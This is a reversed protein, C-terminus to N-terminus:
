GAGAALRADLAPDPRPDLPRHHRASASRAVSSATPHTPGFRGIDFIQGPIRVPASHDPFPRGRVVEAIALEDDVPLGWHDRVVITVDWTAIGDPACRHRSSGSRPTPGSTACPTPWRARPRTPSRPPTSRSTWRGGRSSATSNFQAGFDDDLTADGIAIDRPWDRAFATLRQSLLSRRYADDAAAPIPLSEYGLAANLLEAELFGATAVARETADEQCEADGEEACLFALNVWSPADGPNHEVAAEAADRAVDGLGAREAAVALAKPGAPHWLDIQVSQQLM